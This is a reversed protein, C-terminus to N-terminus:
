LSKFGENIKERIDEDEIIVVIILDGRSDIIVDEKEVGVCIWKRPNVNEKIKTKADEINANDKMRILVVSHAISGVMPESALADMFDIESTGLFGEINMKDIDITTLGMPKEEDAIDAYIQIMLDKLQGEINASGCGSLLLMCGFIFLISIIKKM